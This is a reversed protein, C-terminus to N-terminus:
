LKIILLRIGEEYNGNLQEAGAQNSSEYYKSMISSYTQGLFIVGVDDLWAIVGDVKFNALLM